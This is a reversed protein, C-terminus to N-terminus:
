NKWSSATTSFNLPLSQKSFGFLQEVAQPKSANERAAAQLNLVLQESVKGLYSTTARMKGSENLMEFAPLNLQSQIHRRVLSRLEDGTVDRLSQNKIILDHLVNELIAHYFTGTQAVNLENTVRERLKLGYQLFYGFPNNYYSELQSISVNLQQGFLRMVLEPKLKETKNKYYPASLVIELRKQTTNSIINQIAKFASTKAYQPMIKVLDSLTSRATGIYNKLLLTANDPTSNVINVESSFTDVLRKFFPSMEAIQGSPELIPYSLTIDGTSSMLSGYFLLNEEAMQQQATNQLYRPNSGQQLAPQVITREADNILATTKSQAPLNQRTGGIFYLQKYQTSQVIGAESIMLQDLNNPIGSFKAGSLGAQLTTVMDILSVQRTGDINVMEDLTQTFMQWVEEIQQARSLDGQAIFDNKQEILAETVHYKQLWLILHTVSQRLNQAQSFGQDLEDFADVIFHRLYELRHNIKEDKSVETDDNDRTVQFLKFERSFDRWKSEYPRYAYLYNDMYSVIDFFEDRSVLKNDSIPRLLGTKLIALITQYNFKNPGLLNLILEVLPHNMMNIDVDLFYPLDFQAMIAKIHAEYPTLDRALIIIDRLHLEPNEALSARIRRAVEKIETIPNEAAFAKLNVDNRSGKFPRYEGLSEWAELVQRSTRSQKREQKAAVVKVEQQAMQAVDTLQQVTTMPKFFVDGSQQHGLQKTNGLISITVPYKIVLQNVVMMEASTFGNFGDFYFAVNSLDFTSLQKAFTLLVEQNTIQNNGMLQNFIESVIALDRLKANLTQRLFVNDASQELIELLNEPTVNSARLEVLQSVLAAVFGSKAQMRSFVPLKDAQERLINSVMMFLGTPAIIDPQDEPTNKMLAWALRTLSYVQLRSQAYLKTEDNGNIISFRQLVDVESDFKVHNPVIYYVALASHQQFQQQINELMEGRLDHRGNGMLINLTM